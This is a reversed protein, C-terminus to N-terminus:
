LAWIQNILEISHALYM